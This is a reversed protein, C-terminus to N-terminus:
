LSEGSTARWEDVAARFQDYAARLPTGPEGQAKTTYRVDGARERPFAARIADMWADDAACALKYLEHTTSTQM